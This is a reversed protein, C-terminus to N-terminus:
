DLFTLGFMQIIAASDGKAHYNLLVTDKLTVDANLV